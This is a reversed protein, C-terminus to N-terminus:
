DTFCENNTKSTAFETNNGSVVGTPSDAIHLCKDCYLRRPVEAKESQGPANHVDEAQQPPSNATDPGPPAAVTAAGNPGNDAIKQSLREAKEIAKQWDEHM